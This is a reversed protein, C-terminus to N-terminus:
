DRPVAHHVHDMVNEFGRAPLKPIRTGDVLMNFSLAITVPVDDELCGHIFYFPYIALSRDLNFVGVVHSEEDGDFVVNAWQWGLAKVLQEGWLCGLLFEPPDDEPFAPGRGKQIEYAFYDVAEVIRKPEADSLDVGLLEQTRSICEQIDELM